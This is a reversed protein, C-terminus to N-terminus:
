SRFVWAGYTKGHSKVEIYQLGKIPLAVVRDRQEKDIMLQGERSYIRLLFAGEFDPLYVSEETPNPFIELDLHKSPEISSLRVKDALLFGPIDAELVRELLVRHAADNLHVGDGSDWFSLLLGTASSFERWFDIAFDGFRQFTSDRLETQIIVQESNSFNRPQPSCIWHPINLAQLEALIRDYNSLQDEVSYFNAADNSPLNIILGQPNLSLAQTINRSTDVSQNIGDPIETGTPLLNYTTFGGRALNTVRFRTDNQFLTDRYRWVWASDLTSPGSGAATSSGLVVVHCDLTDEAAITFADPSISTLTDGSIRILCDESPFDPITWSYKQTLANVTDISNWSLGDDLSYDLRVQLLDRSSWRIEPAKGPQWYEGGTPSTLSLAPDLPAVEDEYQLRLAGLYYFGFENNNESGATVNIRITGDAAPLMDLIEVFDATNSSVQLLMTTDRSGSLTYETQRNDTAIRSAFIRLDYAIDLELGSLLVAATPQTQSSFEVLNGFFSDGSATSPIELSPDAASIGSSNTGNFADVVALQVGTPSGADSILDSLMGNGPNALNNWPLATNNGGVDVNITILDQASYSFFCTLLSIILLYRM